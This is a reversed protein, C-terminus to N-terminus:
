VLGNEDKLKEFRLGGVPANLRGRNVLCLILAIEDPLVPTPDHRRLALARYSRRITLKM